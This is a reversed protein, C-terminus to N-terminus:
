SKFHINMRRSALGALGAGLLIITSPEPVPSPPGGEIDLTDSFFIHASPDTQM